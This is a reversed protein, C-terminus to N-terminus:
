VHCSPDLNPSIASYRSERNGLNGEVADPSRWLQSILRQFSDYPFSVLSGPLRAADASIFLRQSEATRRERRIWLRGRFGGWGRWVRRIMPHIM